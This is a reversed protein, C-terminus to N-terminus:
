LTELGLTVDKFLQYQCVLVGFGQLGIFYDIM